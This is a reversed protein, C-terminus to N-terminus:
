PLDSRPLRPWDLSIVGELLLLTLYPRLAPPPPMAGPAAALRPRPTPLPPTCMAVEARTGVRLTVPRGERLADFAAELVGPISGSPLPARAAPTHGRAESTGGSTVSGGELAALNASASASSISICSICTEDFASRSSTEAGAVAGLAAHAAEEVGFVHRSVFGGCAEERQLALALQETASKCAAVVREYRAEDSPAAAAALTFVVNLASLPAGKGCAPASARMFPELTLAVPWGILRCDGVTLDLLQEYRGAKTMLLDALVIPDFGPVRALPAPLAEGTNPHHYAIRHGGQAVVLLVSSPAAEAPLTPSQSGGFGWSYNQVNQLITPTTLRVGDM